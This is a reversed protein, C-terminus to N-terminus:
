KKPHDLVFNYDAIELKTIPLTLIFTMKKTDQSFNANTDKIKWHTRCDFEATKRKYEKILM